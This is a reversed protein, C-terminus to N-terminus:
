AAAQLSLRCHHGRDTQQLRDATQARSWGLLRPVTAINQAVTRRRLLPATQFIVGVSRRATLLEARDLRTFDKGDVRVTGSTPRELFSVCRSLTSKGAGNEGLLGYVRGPELAFSVGHLLDM